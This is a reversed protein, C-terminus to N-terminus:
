PQDGRLAVKEDELIAIVLDCLTVVNTAVFEANGDYSELCCKALDILRNHDEPYTSFPKTTIENTPTVDGCWHNEQTFPWAYDAGEFVAPSHRHCQGGPIREHREWYACQSCTTKKM